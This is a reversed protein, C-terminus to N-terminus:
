KQKHGQVKSELFSFVDTIATGSTYEHKPHGASVQLCDQDPERVKEGLPKDSTVWNKAYQKIFKKVHSPDFFGLSHVSDTFAICAVKQVFEDYFKTVLQVTNDGGRSHAVIAITTCSSKQVFNKWVYEGHKGYNESGEIKQTEVKPPKEKQTTLFTSRLVDPANVPQENLNPNFVIVGWGLKACRELYPFITGIDLNENICLARAWQGARVAGAGQILLCLTDCNLANESIFINNQPVNTKDLPLLIEKLQYKQVMLNQIDRVIVDGLADYHAQNVWHFPKATDINRLKGDESFEYNFDKISKPNDFDPITKVVSELYKITDEHALKSISSKQLIVNSLFFVIIVSFSIWFNKLYFITFLSAVILMRFPLPSNFLNWSISSLGSVNSANAKPRDKLLELIQPKLSLKGAQIDCYELISKRTNYFDDVKVEM